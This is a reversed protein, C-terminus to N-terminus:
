TNDRQQRRDQEPKEMRGYDDELRIIDDEGFYDGMQVEIFVLPTSGPNAVRHASERFINVSDGKKLSIDRGDVTAIATGAVVVWHERRLRHKQLSLRHGPNVTIRKVKHEASEALIEFSGWPRNEGDTKKNYNKNFGVIFM